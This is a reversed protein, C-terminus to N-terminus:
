ACPRTQDFKTIEYVAVNAAILSTIVQVQTEECSNMSRYIDPPSNNTAAESAQRMRPLNSVKLQNQKTICKRTILAFNYLQQEKRYPMKM